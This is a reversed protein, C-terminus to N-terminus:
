PTGREIKDGWAFHVILWVNFIAYAVLIATAAWPHLRQFYWWHESITDMRRTSFVGWLEVVVLQIGVLILQIALILYILSATNKM